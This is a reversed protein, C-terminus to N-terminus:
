KCKKAKLRITMLEQCRIAAHIFPSVESQEIETFLHENILNFTSETEKREKHSMLDESYVADIMTITINLQCNSEVIKGIFVQRKKDLDITNSDWFNIVICSENQVSIDLDKINVLKRGLQAIKTNKFKQATLDNVTVTYDGLNLVKVAQRIASDSTGRHKVKKNHYRVGEKNGGEVIVTWNNQENEHLTISATM